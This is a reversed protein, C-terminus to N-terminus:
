HFTGARVYVRIWHANKWRGSTYRLDDVLTDGQPVLTWRELRVADESRAGSVTHTETRVTFGRRLGVWSARRSRHAGFGGVPRTIDDVVFTDALAPHEAVDILMVERGGATISIRAPNPGLVELSCLLVDRASGRPTDVPSCDSSHLLWFGTLGLAQPVRSTQAALSSPLLVAPAVVTLVLLPSLSM